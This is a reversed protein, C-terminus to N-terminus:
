AVTPLNEFELIVDMKAALIAGNANAKAQNRIDQAYIKWFFNKCVRDKFLDIEVGHVHDTPCIHTYKLM